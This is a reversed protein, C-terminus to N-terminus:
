LKLCSFDFISQPIMFIIERVRQEVRERQLNKKEIFIENKDKLYQDIYRASVWLNLISRHIASLVISLRLIRRWYSVSHVATQSHVRSCKIFRIITQRYSTTITLLIINHGVSHLHIMYFMALSTESIFYFLWVQIKINWTINAVM